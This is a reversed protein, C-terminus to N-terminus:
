LSLNHKQRRLTPIGTSYQDLNILYIASRLFATLRRFNWWKNFFISVAACCLLCFSVKVNPSAPTVGYLILSPRYFLINRGLFQDRTTEKGIKEDFDSFTVFILELWSSLSRKLSTEVAIQSLVLLIVVNDGAGIGNRKQWANGTFPRLYIAHEIIFRKNSM